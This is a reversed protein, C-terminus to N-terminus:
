VALEGNVQQLCPTLGRLWWPILWVKRPKFGLRKMMTRIFLYFCIRYAVSLINVPPNMSALSYISAPVHCSSFASGFPLLSVGWLLSLGRTFFLCLKGDANSFYQSHHEMVHLTQELWTNNPAHQHRLPFLYMQWLGRILQLNRVPQQVWHSPAQKFWLGAHVHWM